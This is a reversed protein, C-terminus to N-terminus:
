IKEQERLIEKIGVGWRYNGIGGTKPLVRHCPIYGSIPNAGVATGVARHAKPHGIKQAIEGYSLSRQPPIKLLEEWVSIQFPTGWLEITEIASETMRTPVIEGGKDGGRLRPGLAVHSIYGSRPKEWDCSRTQEGPGGGARPHCPHPLLTSLNYADVWQAHRWYPRSQADQLVVHLGEQKLSVGLFVLCTDHFALLAHLDKSLQYTGYSFIVGRGLRKLLDPSAVTVASSKIPQQWPMWSM